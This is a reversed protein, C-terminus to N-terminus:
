EIIRVAVIRVEFRVFEELGLGMLVGFGKPRDFGVFVVPTKVLEVAVIVPRVVLSRRLM